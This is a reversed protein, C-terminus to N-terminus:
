ADVHASANEDNDADVDADVGALSQFLGPLVIFFRSAQACSQCGPPSLPSVGVCVVEDVDVTRLARPPVIPSRWLLCLGDADVNADQDVDANGDVDVLPQFLGLLPAVLSRSAQADISWRPPLVIFSRWFM